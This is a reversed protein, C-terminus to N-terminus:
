NKNPVDECIPSESDNISYNILFVTVITWGNLAQKDLKFFASPIDRELFGLFNRLSSQFIGRFEEYMIKNTPLPNWIFTSCSILENLTMPFLFIDTSIM